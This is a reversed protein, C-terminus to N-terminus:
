CKWTWALPPSVTGDPLFSRGARCCAPPRRAGLVLAAAFAIGYCAFGARLQDGQLLAQGWAAAGFAHRAAGGAGRM